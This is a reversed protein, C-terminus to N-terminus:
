GDCVETDMTETRGPSRTATVSAPTTLCCPNGLGSSTPNPKPQYRNM